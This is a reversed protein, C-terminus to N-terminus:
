FFDNILWRDATFLAMRAVGSVDLAAGVVRGATLPATRFATRLETRFATRFETRLETRFETRLATRLETRFETRPVLYAHAGLRRRFNDPRFLPPRPSRHYAAGKV